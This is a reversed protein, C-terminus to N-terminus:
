EEESQNALRNEKKLEEIEENAIQLKMEAAAFLVAMRGLINSADSKMDFGVIEEMSNLLQAFEIASDSFEVGGITKSM